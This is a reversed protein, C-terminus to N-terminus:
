LKIGEDKLAKHIHSLQVSKNKCWKPALLNENGATMRQISINDPLM